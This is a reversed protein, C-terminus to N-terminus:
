APPGQAERLGLTEAVRMIQQRFSSPPVADLQRLIQETAEALFGHQKALIAHIMLLHPESGPLREGRRVKELMAMTSPYQDFFPLGYAVVVCAVEEALGPLYTDTSVNWWIDRHQPMVLGLRQQVPYLATAPNAPLPRGTWCGYVYPAAVVLNVTFSGEARSGWRSAQFHVGHFLDEAPRFLHHGRRHFGQEGLVSQVAKSVFAIAGPMASDPM